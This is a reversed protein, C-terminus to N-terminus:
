APGPRVATPADLIAEVLPRAQEAPGDAGLAQTAAKAGEMVLYLRDALAAPDEIPTTAALRRTLERLTTRLWTKAMVAHQHAPLAPDPFEALAMMCVCGRFREPRMQETHADFAALIQDRPHPGAAEITADFGERTWQDARHVYAAVLDDKSPFLRYLTTTTVEAAAAVRDIGTARVGHWYFLDHAVQLVHERTETASRRM